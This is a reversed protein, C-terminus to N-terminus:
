CSCLQSPQPRHRSRHHRPVTVPISRTYAQLLISFTGHAPQIVSLYRGVSEGLGLNGAVGDSIAQNIDRGTEEAM